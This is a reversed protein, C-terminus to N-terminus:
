WFIIRSTPTFYPFFTRSHQTTHTTYVAASWGTKGDTCLSLSLSYIYICTYLLLLLLLITITTIATTTTTTYWISRARTHTHTHSPRIYPSRPPSRRFLTRSRPAYGGPPSLSLPHSHRRRTRAVSSTRVTYTCAYMHIYAYIGGHARADATRASLSNCKIRACGTVPTVVVARQVRVDSACRRVCVVVDCVCRRCM